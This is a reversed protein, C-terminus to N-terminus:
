DLRIEYQIKNCKKRRNDRTMWTLFDVFIYKPITSEVQIKGTYELYQYLPFLDRVLKRISVLFNFVFRRTLKSLNYTRFLITLRLEM